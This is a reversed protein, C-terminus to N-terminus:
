CTDRSPPRSPRGRAAPGGALAVLLLGALLHLVPRRDLLSLLGFYLGVVLSLTIVATALGAIM